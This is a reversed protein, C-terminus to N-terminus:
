DGFDLVAYGPQGPMAFVTYFYPAAAARTADTQTYGPIGWTYGGRVEHNGIAVLIPVARGDAAILTDTVADFWDFWRDIKDERGDAYALDGGWVIFDPDHEMVQSNMARMWRRDHMTDGGAAIRIPEDATEPMTRFRYIRSQPGFRFEYSTGPLLGSLHVRYVDRETSFPFPFTTAEPAPRWFTHGERRYQLTTLPIETDLHWDVVMTTTPDETWTLYIARPVLTGTDEPVSFFIITGLLLSPFLSIRWM